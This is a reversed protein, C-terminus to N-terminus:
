FRLIRLKRGIDELPKFWVELQETKHGNFFNIDPERLLLQWRALHWDAMM